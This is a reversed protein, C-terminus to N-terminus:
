NTVKQLFWNGHSYYGSNLHRATNAANRTARGFQCSERAIVPRLRKLAWRRNRDNRSNPSTRRPDRRNPCVSRIRFEATTQALSAASAEVRRIFLPIETTAGHPNVHVRLISEAPMGFVTGIGRRRLLEVPFACARCLAIESMATERLM